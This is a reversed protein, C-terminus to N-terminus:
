QCLNNPCVPYIFTSRDPPYPPRGQPPMVKEMPAKILQGPATPPTSSSGSSLAARRKMEVYAAIFTPIVDEEGPDEESASLAKLQPTLLSGNKADRSQASADAIVFSLFIAFLASVRM